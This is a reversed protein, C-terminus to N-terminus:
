TGTMAWWEADLRDVHSDLERFTVLAERPVIGCAKSAARLTMVSHVMLERRAADLEAGVDSQTRTM